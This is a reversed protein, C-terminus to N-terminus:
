WSVELYEHNELVPKTEIYCKFGLGEYKEKMATLMSLTIIDDVTIKASLKGSEATIRIFNDVMQFANDKDRQIKDIALKRAEDPTIM